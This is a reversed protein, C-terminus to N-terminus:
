VGIRKRMHEPELDGTMETIPDAGIEGNRRPPGIRWTRSGRPAIKVDIIIGQNSTSQARTIITDQTANVDQITILDHTTDVDQTTKMDRITDVPVIGRDIIGRNVVCIRVSMGIGM